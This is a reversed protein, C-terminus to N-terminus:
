SRSILSSAPVDTLLVHAVPAEEITRPSNNAQLTTKAHPRKHRPEVNRAKHEAPM